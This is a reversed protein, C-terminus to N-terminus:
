VCSRALPRKGPRADALLLRPLTLGLVGVGGLRLWERRSWGTPSEQPLRASRTMCMMKETCLSSQLGHAESGRLCTKRSADGSPQHYESLFYGHAKSQEGKGNERLSIRM